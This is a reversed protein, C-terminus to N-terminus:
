LHTLVEQVGTLDRCDYDIRVSKFEAETPLEKRVFIATAALNHALQMDSLGDGIMVLRRYSLNKLIPSVMEKAPKEYPTDQSGVM